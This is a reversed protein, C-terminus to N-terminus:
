KHVWKHCCSQLNDKQEISDKTACDFMVKTKGTNMNLGKVETGDKWNATKEHLEM